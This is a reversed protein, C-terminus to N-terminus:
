QRGHGPPQAACDRSVNGALGELLVTRPPAQAKGTGGGRQIEGYERM